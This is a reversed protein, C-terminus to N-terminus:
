IRMANNRLKRLVARGSWRGFQVVKTDPRKLSVNCIEFSSGHESLLKLGKKESPGLKGALAKYYENLKADERQYENAACANMELQTKLNNCNDSANSQSSITILSSFVLLFFAKM